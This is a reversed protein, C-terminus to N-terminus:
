FFDGGSGIFLQAIGHEEGGCIHLMRSIDNLDLSDFLGHPHM